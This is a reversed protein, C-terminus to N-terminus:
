QCIIDKDSYLIVFDAFNSIETLNLKNISLKASCELRETTWLKGGGLLLDHTGMRGEPVAQRGSSQM